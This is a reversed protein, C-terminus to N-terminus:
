KAPNVQCNFTNASSGLSGTSVNFTILKMESMKWVAPNGIYGDDKKTCFQRSGELDGLSNALSVKWSWDKTKDELNLLRICTSEVSVSFLKGGYMIQTGADAPTCVFVKKTAWACSVAFLLLSILIKKM